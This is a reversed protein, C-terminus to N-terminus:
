ATRLKMHANWGRRVASGARHDIGPVGKKCQWKERKELKTLDERQAVTRLNLPMLRESKSRSGICIVQEVDADVLHELIQDLAHNTFTVCIIPGLKAAVKNAMLVKVLAVGTYSKATGPPGQILAMSRTLTSILAEAQANDLSTQASLVSADMPSSVNLSIADGRTSLTSLNYRFNPRKTYAPREVSKPQLANQTPALLEAFPLDQSEIM